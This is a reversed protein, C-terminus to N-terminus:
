PVTGAGPQQTPTMPSAPFPSPSLRQSPLTESQVSNVPPPRQEIAVNLGKQIIFNLTAGVITIFIAMAAAFITWQFKMSNRVKSIEESLSQLSLVERSMGKILDTSIAKGQEDTKIKESTRDLAAFWVLFLPMGEQLHVASSGANYVSFVLNGKYGPDVHFGSVNILGQFKVTSKISIFAMANAPVAITEKTLLFGFQGSPIVFSEGTGLQQKRATKWVPRRADSTCFYEPGMCLTYSNCDIKKPDFDSILPPGELEIKEGSWFAM